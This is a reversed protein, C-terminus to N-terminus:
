SLTTITFDNFQFGTNDGRIGSAGPETIPPCGVGKDVASVIEKGNRYLTITVSGDSNNRASAGVRVWQGFPIPNGRAEEGLPYYRGGNIPGGRCKKKIVLTGDRRAVSAYYLEFESQHRLWLHVGDWDSRPTDSTSALGAVNLNMQVQVNRYSHERTRLRFIASNTGSRSQADAAEANIRGSFGNGDRAFLSGSTMEWDSSVIRSTNTPSWYAFENTILGDTSPFRSRFLTRRGTPTIDPPDIVDGLEALEAPDAPISRPEPRAANPPLSTTPTPTRTATLTVDDLVVTSSARFAVGVSVNTVGAPMPPLPIAYETLEGAPLKTGTFWHHWGRGPAYTYVLPRVGTTSSQWLHLTYRQGATVAIRCDDTRDTTLKLRSSSDGRGDIYAAHRGSNGNITVTFEAAGEKSIEWCKLKSDAWGDDFSPNPVSPAAVAPTTTIVVYGASMATALGAAFLTKTLRM